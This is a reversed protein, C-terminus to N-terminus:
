VGPSGDDGLASVNEVPLAFKKEQPTSYYYFLLLILIILLFLLFWAPEFLANSFIALLRVVKRRLVDPAGFEDRVQTKQLVLPLAAILM